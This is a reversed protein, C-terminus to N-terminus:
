ALIYWEDQPISICNKQSSVTGLNSIPSEVISTLRLYGSGGFLSYKLLKQWGFKVLIFINLGVYVDSLNVDM